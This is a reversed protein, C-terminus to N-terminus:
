RCAALRPAGDVGPQGDDVAMPDSLGALVPQQVVHRSEGSRHHVRIRFTMQVLQGRM